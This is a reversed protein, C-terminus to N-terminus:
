LNAKRKGSDGLLVGTWIAGILFFVYNRAIYVSVAHAEILTYVSFATIMVVEAYKKKRICYVTVILLVAICVCAPIIGYWYFLRVWGIDFYYDNAPESFFSWTQVTGEWRTNGTLSRIRGTLINDLKAFLASITTRDTGWDYNYVRYANAAAVVALVISGITALLGAISFYKKVKDNKIFHMIGAYFISFAAVLMSTKSDTLLFFFVNVAFLCLYGYWRMREGYLYLGLVTLAWIMCQLANPHGMGLTYRTEVSGRGYDQTLSVAGGVGVLALLIIAVCGILTMYFVLKLCKKMDIDKCAAIFMVIRVIENRETVLYSISGLVLFLAIALYEKWSYKTLCAKVLFLLFTFQFLRGEIPNTYASKDVIVILVEIVVALYFTYYAIKSILEQRKNM